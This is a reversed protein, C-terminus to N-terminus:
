AAGSSTISCCLVSFGDCVTVITQEYPFGKKSYLAEGIKQWLKGLIFTAL